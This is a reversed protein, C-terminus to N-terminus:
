AGTRLISVKKKPEVKTGNSPVPSVSGDEKTLEEEAEDIMRDFEYEDYWLVTMMINFWGIVSLPYISMLIISKRELEAVAGRLPLLIKREM